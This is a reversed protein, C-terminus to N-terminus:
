SGAVAEPLLVARWVSALHLPYRQGALLKEIARFRKDAGRDDLFDRGEQVSPIRGALHLYVRRLFAADDVPPAPVIKNAAWAKEPHGHIQAALAPADARRQDAVPAAAAPAAPAACALLAASCIWFRVSPM